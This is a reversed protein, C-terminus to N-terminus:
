ISVTRNFFALKTYMCIQVDSLEICVAELAVSPHYFTSLEEYGGCLKQTTKNKNESVWENAGPKFQRLNGNKNLSIFDYKRLNSARILPGVGM